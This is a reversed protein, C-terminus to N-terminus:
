KQPIDHEAYECEVNIDQIGSTTGSHENLSCSYKGSHWSSVSTLGLVTGNWFPLGNKFWTFSSSAKDGDCDNRCTLDLSDGEKVPGDGSSLLM